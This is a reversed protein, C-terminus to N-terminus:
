CIENGSKSWLHPQVSKIEADTGAGGDRGWRAKPNQCLFNDKKELSYLCFMFSIIKGKTVQKTVRNNWSHATHVPSYFLAWLHFKSGMPRSAIQKCSNWHKAYVSRHNSKFRKKTFFFAWFLSIFKSRHEEILYAIASSYASFCKEWSCIWLGLM